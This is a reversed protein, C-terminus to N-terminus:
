LNQVAWNLVKLLRDNLLRSAESENVWRYEHHEPRGLEPNLGLVVNQSDIEGLYYRAVKGHAYPETEVFIKGAPFNVSEIGSEEKLERLATQFPDEEQEVAGKPFDWYKYSRLILFLTKGQKRYVPIVGASLTGM